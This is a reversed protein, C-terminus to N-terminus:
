QLVGVVSPTEPAARRAADAYDGLVAFLSALESRAAIPCEGAGEISEGNCLGSLAHLAGALHMLCWSADRDIVPLNRQDAITGPSPQRGETAKIM